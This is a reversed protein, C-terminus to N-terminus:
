IKPGELAFHALNRGHDFREFLGNRLNGPQRIGILFLDAPSQKRVDFLEIRKAAFYVLADTREIRAFAAGQIDLIEKALLIRAETYSAVKSKIM